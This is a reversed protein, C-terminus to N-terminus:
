LTRDLAIEAFSWNRINPQVTSISLQLEEQLNIAKMATRVVITQVHM